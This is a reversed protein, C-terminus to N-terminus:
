VYDLSYLEKEITTNLDRKHIPELIYFCTWKGNVIPTLDVIYPTPPPINKEPTPKM